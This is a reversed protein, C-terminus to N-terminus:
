RSACKRLQKGERPVPARAAALITALQIARGRGRWALCRRQRCGYPSRPSAVLGRSLCRLRRWRDLDIGIPRELSGDAHEFHDRLFECTGDDCRERSRGNHRAKTLVTSSSSM